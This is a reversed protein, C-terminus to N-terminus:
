WRTIAPQLRYVRLLAHACSANRGPRRVTDSEESSGASWADHDSYDEDQVRSARTLM